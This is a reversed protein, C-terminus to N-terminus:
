TRTDTSMLSCGRPEAPAARGLLEFRNGRRVALDETQVALVSFTNALDFIQLLGTEGDAVERGTEPSVVRARAWLPFRFARSKTDPDPEEVEPNQGTIACDYAQSNLESMGYESVIHSAPIGLHKSILAHLERKELTRSRGKYGGTEMIRSGPPLAFALDCQSLHDLLNVCNFATGLLMVPAQETVAGKLLQLVTDINLEWGDVTCRGAFATEPAGLRQRITEFMHVLSSHPAQGPPPTLLILREIPSPQPDSAKRDGLLHAEFWPWLSAEYLALSEPSHFHRSPQQGTTGSSHFVRTREEPALCTMELEKFAQTPVPPIQTWHSLAEPSANRRQCLARYAPNLKFQLTFLMLAMGNFEADHHAALAPHGASERTSEDSSFAIFDRLRESFITLEPSM